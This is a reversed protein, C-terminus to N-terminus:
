GGLEGLGSGIRDAWRWFRHPLLDRGVDPGGYAALTCEVPNHLVDVVYEIELVALEDVEDVDVTAASM